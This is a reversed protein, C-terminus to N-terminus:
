TPAPHSPPPPSSWSPDDPPLVRPRRGRTTRRRRGLWGPAAGGLSRARVCRRDRATRTGRCCGSARAPACAAGHPRRRPAGRRAAASIPLACTQVGTVLDDRIGDEAQFFFFTVHCIFM